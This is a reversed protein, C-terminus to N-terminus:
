YYRCLINKLLIVQISFLSKIFLTKKMWFSTLGTTIYVKLFLVTKIIFRKRIFNSMACVYFKCFSWQILAYERCMRLTFEKVLMNHIIGPIHANM